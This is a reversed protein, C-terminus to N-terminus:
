RAPVCRCSTASREPLLGITDLYGRRLFTADDCGKSPVGRLKRLKGHILEDVRNAVGLDPFVAAPGAPVVIVPLGVNNEGYRVMVFSEGRQQGSVVGECSVLAAATNTSTFVSLGTVDRDTGDDYHARVVLRHSDGVAPQGEPGAGAEAESLVVESPFVELRRVRPVDKPDRPAGQELWKLLVGYMESDSDFRQGGGHVVQESPKALLLSSAPRALDIRRGVFERTIRFYDGAPDFGFM